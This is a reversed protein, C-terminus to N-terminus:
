AGTQNPQDPEAPEYEPLFRPDLGRLLEEVEADDLKRGTYHSPSPVYEDEVFRIHVGERSRLLM